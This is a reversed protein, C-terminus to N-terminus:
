MDPVPMVAIVDIYGDPMQLHPSNEMVKAAAEQSEAEIISYGTVENKVSSVGSTTVRKTKGLPAGMDALANKHSKMWKVWSDMGSKMDQPTTNAMMKEISAVPALYLVFFKSM